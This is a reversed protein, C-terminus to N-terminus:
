LAATVQALRSIKWVEADAPEDEAPTIWVPTAGVGLAGAIDKRYDDGVFLLETCTVGLADALTNFASAHPKAHPLDSSAVMLPFRHSIGMTELKGRQQETRGNTLIGFPFGLTELRDLLEALDDFPRWLAQYSNLYDVFLEEFDQGTQLEVGIFSMFDRMRYTRQQHFDIEHREHRDWHLDELRHWERSVEIASMPIAWGMKASFNLIGQDACGRHDFLTGDLDFGVARIHHLSPNSM